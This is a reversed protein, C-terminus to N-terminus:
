ILIKGRGNEDSCKQFMKWFVAGVVVKAKQGNILLYYQIRSIAGDSVDILSPWNLSVNVFGM